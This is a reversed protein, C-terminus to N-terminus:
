KLTESPLGVITLTGISTIGGTQLITIKETDFNTVKNSQAIARKFKLYNNYNGQIEFAIPIRYYEVNQNNQPQNNTDQDPQKKKEKSQKPNADQTQQLNAGLVPVRNQVKFNILNLGNSAAFNSISQYLGEVEKSSHFLSSNKQYEAELAKIAQDLQVMNEKFTLSNKQNERMENVKTKQEQVVPNVFGYYIILFIFIAGLTIGIKTLAKKDKLIDNHNKLSSFLEKIDLNKLGDLNM